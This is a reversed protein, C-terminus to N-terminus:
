CATLRWSHQRQEGWTIMEEEENMMQKLMRYTQHDAVPNTESLHKCLSELIATKNVRYIGTLLELTGQARLAEEM